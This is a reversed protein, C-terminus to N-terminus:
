QGVEYTCYRNEGHFCCRMAGKSPLMMDDQGRSPRLVANSREQRDYHKDQSKYKSPLMMKTCSAVCNLGPKIAGM